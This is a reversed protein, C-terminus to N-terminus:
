AAGERGPALEPHAAFQEAFARLKVPMRRRGWNGHGAEFVGACATGCRRCKADDTLNWEDLMHWDRGILRLGCEHCYTSGTPKHHINGTYAYRVGNGRAIQWSRILTEAPTREKDRMRYDPHFATFHLPVDPGLEKVVWRSLRDVEEPSDNEGPILLTTIELWTGTEHQIYKLTDLVRDLRATCLERYFGETFAKLDVNVADMWGYFERRAEPNIYGATVAVNKVGRERCAAAVDV